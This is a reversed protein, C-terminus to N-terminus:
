LQPLGAVKPKKERVSIIKRDFDKVTELNVFRNGCIRKDQQCANTVAELDNESEIIIASPENGANLLQLKFNPM